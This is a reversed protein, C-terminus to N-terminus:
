AFNQIHGEIEQIWCRVRVKHKLLQDYTTSSNHVPVAFSANHGEFLWYHYEPFKLCHFCNKLRCIELVFYDWHKTPPLIIQTQKLKILYNPSISKSYSYRELKQKHSDKKLITVHRREWPPVRFMPLITELTVYWLFSIICFITKVNIAKTNLWLCKSGHM